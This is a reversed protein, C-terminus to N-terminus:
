KALWLFEGEDSVFTSIGEYGDEFAQTIGYTDDLSFRNYETFLRRDSKAACLIYYLHAGRLRAQCRVRMGGITMLATLLSRESPRVSTLVFRSGGDWARSAATAVVERELGNGLYSPHVTIDGLEACGEATTDSMGSKRALNAGGRASVSCVACLEGCAFVGMVESERMMDQARSLADEEGASSLLSALAGLESVSLPRTVIPLVEGTDNNKVFPKM